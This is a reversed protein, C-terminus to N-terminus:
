ELSIKGGYNEEWDEMFMKIEEELAPYGYTEYLLEEVENPTIYGSGERDVTHFAKEFEEDTYVNIGISCM